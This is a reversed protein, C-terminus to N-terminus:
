VRLAGPRAAKVGEPDFERQGDLSHPAGALHLQGPSPWMEADGFFTLRVDDGVDVHRDLRHEAGEHGTPERIM